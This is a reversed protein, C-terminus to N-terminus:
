PEVAWRPNGKWGTSYKSITPSYSLQSLAEIANFLYPTRTGGAGGFTVTPLVEVQDSRRGNPPLPLKYHITAAAQHIDIRQVFSRIFGKREALASEELLGRLDQAYANVVDADVPQAGQVVMDSLAKRKAEQLQDLRIRMEKIRPALDDIALAGTELAEYHRTLRAKVDQLESDLIDMREGLGDGISQLEENVMLVLKKLNEETLVRGHLQALVTRELKEKPLMKSKCALKGQKAARSCVYYFHRGSKASRGTMARGCSCFVFGSLLYPSHITRPHSVLPSRAAMKIQVMDFTEKCVIGPWANEVRVPAEGSRAAPHGVRGGWVLTGKYAENTLIKYVTVNGWLEGTATRIGEQNLIKAIEKCGTDKAALRFIRRVVQVTTSSEAAPALRYRVKVGDRVAVKQFGYPPRSGNFFGRAANERMGRKIDQGLNASYFEDISEIVGEILRGTPTEDIPEHISIVDIGKGRLLTKYTISDARSRSFRNLKWVLIAKFPPVKLKALSVMERFAPRDATRGSKAEDVFERTVVHGCRSAYEKLARLQASISLDADQKDSSVRVYLAVEM